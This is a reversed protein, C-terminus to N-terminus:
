DLLGDLPDITIVRADPDVATVTHEDFPILVTGERPPAHRLELVLGQPLEYVEVVEGVPEGTTRVVQMGPLDHLYVEDEDPPPLESSPVLLYRDRWTEAASRDIIERFRVIFGGKFPSAHEVHLQLEDRAPKGSTTGAFVRRGPAFVAGPEDTLAEVVVEGRIGHARRVRGVALLEDPSPSTSM